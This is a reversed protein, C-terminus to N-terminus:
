TPPPTEIKQLHMSTLMDIFLRSAGAMVLSSYSTQTNRMVEMGGHCLPSGASLLGQVFGYLGDPVCFRSYLKTVTYHTGYSVFVTAVAKLIAEM